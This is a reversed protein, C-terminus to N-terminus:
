PTGGKFRDVDDCRDHLPLPGPLGLYNGQGFDVGLEAVCELQAATEIGEAVVKAGAERAFSTIGTGLAFKNRDQDIGAVLSVDLKILEPKVILIHRLSAYGAGADDVAVRLGRERMLTLAATLADYDEVVDHETLEVVLPGSRGHTTVLDVFRESIAVDPSVNVSVYTGRPRRTANELAMSVAALELDPGLGVAKAEDFWVDPTRFPEVPFRALAEVGALIGTRVDRIPQYVIAFSREEILRAIRDGRLRLSEEQDHQVTLRDSLEGIVDKAVENSLVGEGRSAALISQAVDVDSGKVLYGAAGSRLMEMVGERDSSGSLAVVKTDPSGELIERAARVGGGKPMQVDVLAVDPQTELAVSIAEEADGALGVLELSSKKSVIRALARRLAENDDAIMVRVLSTSQEQSASQAQSVSPSAETDGARNESSRHAGSRPVDDRGDAV